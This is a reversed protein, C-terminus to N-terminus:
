LLQGFTLICCTIFRGAFIILVVTKLCQLKKVQLKMTQEVGNEGSGERDKTVNERLKASHELAVPLCVDNAPCWLAVSFTCPFKTGLVSKASM